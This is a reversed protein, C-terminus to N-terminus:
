LFIIILLHVRKFRENKKPLTCVTHYKATITRLIIYQRERCRQLPHYTGESCIEHDVDDSSVDVSSSERKGNQKSSSKSKPTSTTVNGNM